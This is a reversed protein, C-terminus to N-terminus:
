GTMNWGKSLSFIEVGVEKAGATSLFSPPRYGDFAIESYDNDHVVLLDDPHAFEVAREFFGEAAVAGTPNNPYNLYLLNARSTVDRGVAELDPM